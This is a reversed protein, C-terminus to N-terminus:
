RVSVIVKRISNGVGVLYLGEPLTVHLESSQRSIVLRGMTDFIRIDAAKPLVVSLAAGSVRVAFEKQLTNEVATAGDCVYGKGKKNGWIYEVLEPDMVFPNVNGQVKEVAANRKTEKESVPDQRHWKLLLSLAKSTFGATNNNFTFMQYGKGGAAFNKDSYRTVMYFYVRALDGKYEDAPEFAYNNGSYGWTGYGVKSGLTNEWVPTSTVEGFAWASRQTNAEFDTPFIHHLDTYMPEDTSGGWWSKPLTHERNYCECEEFDDGYGCHESEYFTCASYIDWITGDERYDVGSRYAWVESYDLPDYKSIMDYLSALLQKETQGELDAFACETSPQGPNYPEDGTPVHFTGNKLEPQNNYNMLTGTVEVYEGVELTREDSSSEGKVNFCWVPTATSEPSDNLYFRANSYNPYGSVWKSVVGCVTYVGSAEEGQALNLGSYISVLEEVTYVLEPARYYSMAGENWGTITCLDGDLLTLDQTYNWMEGETFSSYTATPAMRIFIVNNNGDPVDQVYYGSGSDYKMLPAFGAGGMRNWYYVGFKANDSKWNDDPNLYVRTASLQMVCMTLCFFTFLKKM